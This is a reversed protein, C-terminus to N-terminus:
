AVDEMIEIETYDYLFEMLEGIIEEDTFPTTEVNVLRANLLDGMMVHRYGSLQQNIVKVQLSMSPSHIHLTMTGGRTVSFRVAWDSCPMPVFFAADLGKDEWEDVVKGLVFQASPYRLLIRKLRLLVTNIERTNPEINCYLVTFSPEYETM